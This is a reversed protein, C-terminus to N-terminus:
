WRKYSEFANDTAGGISSGDGKGAGTIVGTEVDVTRVGVRKQSGAFQVSGFLMEKAGELSGPPVEGRAIKEEICEGTPLPKGDRSMRVVFRLLDKDSRKDYVFVNDPGVDYGRKRMADVVAKRLEGGDGSEGADGSADHKCRASQALRQRGTEGPTAVTNSPDYSPPGLSPIGLMAHFLTEPPRVAEDFASMWANVALERADQRWLEESPAFAGALDAIAALRKAAGADKKLRKLLSEFESKRKDSESKSPLFPARGLDAGRESYVAEGGEVRLKRGAPDAISAVGGNGDSEVTFREPFYVYETTHSYGHPIYRVFYGEPHYSWRGRPIDRDGKQRKYEGTLVAVRELEAFPANASYFMSRLRNEAEMIQRLPGPLSGFLSGSSQEKLFDWGSGELSALDKESVLQSATNRLEPSLKSPKTRALIAWVLSQVKQQEIEPHDVSERLISRIVKERPGKLPAYLYGEGGGPGHTGAHLCYSQAEYTFHGPFARFSGVENRPLVTMRVVDRPQYGDLYSIETIADALSTTIPPDEKILRDLGPIAPLSPRRINPLQSYAIPLAAALALLAAIRTNRNNM